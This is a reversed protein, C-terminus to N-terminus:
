TTDSPGTYMFREPLSTELGLALLVRHATFETVDDVTQPRLYYPPEPPIVAANLRALKAMNELHIANVPSERPVIVLPRREKLCVDAARRPLNDSLGTAVAAITAMSAPVIAMGATPFTGSAIPARLDASNYYDFRGSYKWRELASGFSEDMEEAWVMRAAPTATAIVSRGSSLLLDVAAASLPAGSAGTMGIVVPLGNADLEVGKLRLTNCEDYGDGLSLPLTQM